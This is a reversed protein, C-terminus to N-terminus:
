LGFLEMLRTLLNEDFPLFHRIFGFIRFYISYEIIIPTKLNNIILTEYSIKQSKTVLYKVIENSFFLCIKILIRM